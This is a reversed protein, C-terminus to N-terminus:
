VVSAPAQGTLIKQSGTGANPAASDAPAAIPVAASGEAVSASSIPGEEAAARASRDSDMRHSAARAYEVAANGGTVVFPSSSPIGIAARTKGLRQRAVVEAFDVHGCIRRQQRSEFTGVWGAEFPKPLCGAARSFEVIRLGSKREIEGADVRM